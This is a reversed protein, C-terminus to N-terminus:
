WRQKKRMLPQVVTKVAAAFATDNALADSVMRSLPGANYESVTCTTCPSAKANFGRLSERWKGLAVYADVLGMGNVGIKGMVATAHSPSDSRLQCCVVVSGDNDIVLHKYPAYCPAQRTTKRALSILGGRDSMDRKLMVAVNRVHTTIEIRDYIVTSALEPETETIVAKKGIRGLFRDHYNHAVKLDYVEEDPIYIDIWIRDLGADALKELYDATLFDGNSNVTIRAKPAALRVERIRDLIRKESLPESYRSWVISGDFDVERMGDLIAQWTEEPMIHKESRRDIQANPCFSCTRNCYSTTEVEILEVHRKFLERARDPSLDTRFQDPEMMLSNKAVAAFSSFRTLENM